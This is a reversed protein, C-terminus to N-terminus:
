SKPSFGPSKADRVSNTTVSPCLDTFDMFGPSDRSFLSLHSGQEKNMEISTNMDKSM